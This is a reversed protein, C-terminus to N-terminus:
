QLENIYKIFSSDFRKSNESEKLWSYHLSKYYKLTPKFGADEHWKNGYIDEAHGWCVWAFTEYQKLSDGTFSTKYSSTKGPDTFDPNDFERERIEYWKNALYTYRTM